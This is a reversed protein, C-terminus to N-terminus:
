YVEFEIGNVMAGTDILPNNKEPDRGPWQGKPPDKLDVAYEKISDRLLIGVEELYKDESMTGFLVDPLTRYAKELVIDKNQDFGARLFSREPIVIVTTSPKLHVGISHLYARMKPTVPIKCGYEHIAALRQHEGELVGVNVKAGNLANLAASLKGTMDKENKMKFSM